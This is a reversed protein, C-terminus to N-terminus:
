VQSIFGRQGRRLRGLGEGAPRYGCGHWGGRVGRPGGESGRRLGRQGRRLRGVGRLAENFRDWQSGGLPPSLWWSLGCGFCAATAGPACALEPRPAAPPAPRPLPGRRPLRLTQITNKSDQNYYALAPQTPLHSGRADQALLGAKTDEM